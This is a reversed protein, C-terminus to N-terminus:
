DRRAFRRAALPAFVVILVVSWVLTTGVPHALPLPGSPVLGNGFLHRLATVAASFPNWEAIVRVASPMGSTPVLANSIMVLGLILPALQQVVEQSRLVLGLWIGVWILAYGFLLLLAFAAAVSAVSGHPRWGVGYGVLTMAVLAMVSLALQGITAGLPVALRSIPLSRFRDTVGDQVDQAAAAAAVVLGTAAVLVFVAPVLVQRYASAAGDSALAGGFVFGFVAVLGLPGALNALLLAPNRKLALSNRYVVAAGGSFSRRTRVTVSSM